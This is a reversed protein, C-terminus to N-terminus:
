GKFGKVRFGTSGLGRYIRYSGRYLDFAGLVM